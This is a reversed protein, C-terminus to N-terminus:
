AVVEKRETVLRAIMAAAEGAAEPRALRKEAEITRARRVPDALLSALAAPLEDVRRTRV